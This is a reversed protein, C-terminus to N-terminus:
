YLLNNIFIINQNRYLQNLKKKNEDKLKKIEQTKTTKTWTTMHNLWHNLSLM